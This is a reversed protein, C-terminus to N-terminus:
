VDSLLSRVLEDQADFIQADVQDWSMFEANRLISSDSNNCFSVIKGRMEDFTTRGHGHLFRVADKAIVVSKSDIEGRGRVYCIMDRITGIDLAALMTNAREPHLSFTRKLFSVKDFEDTEVMTPRKLADTFELGAADMFEKITVNNFLPYLLSHTRGVLDDGYMIVRVYKRFLLFPNGKVLKALQANHECVYLWAARIYLNNVFTNFEATFPNGSFIGQQPRFWYHLVIHDSNLMVSFLRRMMMVDCPTVDGYVEYWKIIIDIIKGAFHHIITPGFNKYDATIYRAKVSPIQEEVEGMHQFMDFAESDIDCGIASGVHFRAKRYAAFFPLFYQLFLVHVVFDSGNIGRIAKAPKKREDKLFLMANSRPKCGSMLESTFENYLSVFKPDLSTINRGNQDGSIGLPMGDSFSGQGIPYILFVATAAAVPASYAVAIWPRM